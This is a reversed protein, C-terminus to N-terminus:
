NAKALYSGPIQMYKVSTAKQFNLEQMKELAQGWFSAEAFAVELKKNEKALSNLQNEYSNILYYGHTLSNVQWVYFVLLSLCALFGAICVFRWNVTPFDILDVKAQIKKQIKSYNLATTTM